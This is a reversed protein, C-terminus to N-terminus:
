RLVPKTFLQHGLALFSLFPPSTPFYPCLYSSHSLILCSPNVLWAQLLSCTSPSFSLGLPLSYILIFLSILNYLSTPFYGVSYPRANMFMLSQTMKKPLSDSVTWPYKTGLTPSSDMIRLNLTETSANLETFSVSVPIYGPNINM